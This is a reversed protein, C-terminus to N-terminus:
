KDMPMASVTLMGFYEGDMAPPARLYNMSHLKDRFPFDRVALTNLQM